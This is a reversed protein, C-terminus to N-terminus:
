IEVFCGASDICHLLPMERKREIQHVSCLCYEYDLKELRHGKSMSVLDSLQVNNCGKISLEKVERCATQLTRLGAATVSSCWNLILRRLKTMHTLCTLRADTIRCLFSLDVDELHPSEGLCNLGRRHDSHMRQPPRLALTPSPLADQSRQRDDSPLQSSLRVAADQVPCPRGADRGQGLRLRASQHIGTAENQQSLLVRATEDRAHPPADSRAPKDAARSRRVLDRPLQQHGSEESQSYATALVHRRGDGWRVPESQASGTRTRKAVDTRRGHCGHWLSEACATDPRLYSMGRSRRRCGRLEESEAGGSPFSLRHLPLIVPRPRDTPSISRLQGVGCKSTWCVVFCM